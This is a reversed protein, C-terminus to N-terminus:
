REARERAISRGALGTFVLGVLAVPMLLPARLTTVGLVLVAALIAVGLAVRGFRAEYAYVLVGGLAAVLYLAVLVMAQRTAPDIAPMADPLM